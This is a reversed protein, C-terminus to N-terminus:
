HVNTEPGRSLVRDVLRKKVAM